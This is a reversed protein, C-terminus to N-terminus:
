LADRDKTLGEIAGTYKAGYPKKFAARVPAVAKRDAAMWSQRLDQKVM